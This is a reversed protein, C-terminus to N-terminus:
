VTGQGLIFKEPNYVALLSEELFHIKFSDDGNTKNGLWTAGGEAWSNYPRLEMKTMYNRQTYRPNHALEQDGEMVPTMGVPVAFFHMQEDPTLTGVADNGRFTHETLYKWNQKLFTYGGHEFGNVGLNLIKGGGQSMMYEGIYNDLVSASGYSSNFTRGLEDFKLSQDIDSFFMNVYAGQVKNYHKLLSELDATTTIQGLWTAGRDSVQAFAGKTGQLDIAAADSGAAPEEGEIGKKEIMELTDERTSDIENIFWRYEGNISVWGKVPPTSGLETYVNRTIAPRNSHVSYPLKLGATFDAGASGKGVEIGLSYVYSGTLPTAAYAAVLDISAQDYTGLNVETGSVVETVIFVGAGLTTHLKVKEHLRYSVKASAARTLVNSTGVTLTADDYTVAKREMETWIYKDSELKETASMKQLFGGITNDYKMIAEARVDPRDYTSFDYLDVYNSSTPTLGYNIGDAPSLYEFDQLAM